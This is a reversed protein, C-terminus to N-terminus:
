QGLRLTAGNIYILGAKVRPALPAYGWVNRQQIASSYGARFKGMDASKYRIKHAAWFAVISTTETARDLERHGTFGCAHAIAM